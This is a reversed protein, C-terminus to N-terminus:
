KANPANKVNANLKISNNVETKTRKSLENFVLLLLFIILKSMASIIANPILWYINIRGIVIQCVFLPFISNELPITAPEKNINITLIRNM